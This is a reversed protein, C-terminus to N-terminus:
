PSFFFVVAVIFVGMADLYKLEEKGVSYAM